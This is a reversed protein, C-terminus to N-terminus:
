RYIAKYQLCGTKQWHSAGPPVHRGAPGADWEGKEKGKREEGGRKEGRRGERVM